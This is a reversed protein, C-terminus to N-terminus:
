PKKAEIYFSALRRIEDALDYAPDYDVVNVDVFGAHSLLRTMKDPDYLVRHEWGRATLDIYDIHSRLEPIPLDTGLSDLLSSAKLFYESDGEVYARIPIRADPVAARFLGSKKLVRLCQKMLEFGDTTNLHEFFHSSYVVDISGDNFPLGRRLDYNIVVTRGKFSPKVGADINIWGPHIDTGCGLNLVLTSQQFESINLDRVPLIRSCIRLLKSSIREVLSTM